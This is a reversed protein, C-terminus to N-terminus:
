EDVRGGAQEPPMYAPTGMVAGVRTLRGRRDRVEKVEDKEDLKRALGFDMVHPSMEADVMVNQPKLDRHIIGKQHAYGIAECVKMFLRLLVGWDGAHDKMVA